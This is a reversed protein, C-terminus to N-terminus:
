PTSGYLLACPILVYTVIVRLMNCYYKQLSSSGEVDGNFDAEAVIVPGPYGITACVWRAGTPKHIVISRGVVSYEGFLPVYLDTFTDNINQKSELSGYKGSLDGVQM